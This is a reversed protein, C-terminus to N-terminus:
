LKLRFSYTDRKKFGLSEYLAIAEVREPSSTLSLHHLGAGRASRLVEKMLARGIGNGRYEPNVVVDEVIGVRYELKQYAILTAMGVIRATEKHRAVILGGFPAHAVARFERLRITAARPNLFKRLANVDELSALEEISGEIYLQEVAFLDKNM